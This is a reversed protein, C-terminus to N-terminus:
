YKVPFSFTERYRKALAQLTHLCNEVRVIRDSSVNVEEDIIVLSAGSDLAQQAFHNGNFNDGKLAFFIDDLSVNRTDTTVSRVDLFKQFIFEIM